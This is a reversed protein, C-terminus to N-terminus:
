NCLGSARAILDQAMELAMDRLLKKTERLKLPELLRISGALSSYPPLAEVAIKGEKSVYPIVGERKTWDPQGGVQLQLSDVSTWECRWLVPDSPALSSNYWTVLEEVLGYKIAMEKEPFVAIPGPTWEGRKLEPGGTYPRSEMMWIYGIKTTKMAKM